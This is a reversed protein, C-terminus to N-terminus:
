SANQQLAIFKQAVLLKTVLNFNSWGCPVKIKQHCLIVIMTPNLMKAYTYFKHLM